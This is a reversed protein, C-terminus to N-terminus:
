PPFGDIVLPDGWLSPQYRPFRKWPMVDDHTPPIRICFEQSTSYLGFVIGKLSAILRAYYLRGPLYQLSGEYAFLLSM